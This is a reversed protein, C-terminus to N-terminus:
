GTDILRKLIDRTLKPKTQKKVTFNKYPLIDGLQRGSRARYIKQTFIPVEYGVAESLTKRQPDLTWVLDQIYKVFSIGTTEVNTFTMDVSEELM